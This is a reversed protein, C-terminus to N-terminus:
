SITTNYDLNITRIIKEAQNLKLTFICQYVRDLIKQLKLDNKHKKRLQYLKYPLELDKKTYSVQTYEQVKELFTYGFELTPEIMTGEGFDNWTIIQIFDVPYQNSLNLTAELTQTGNPAIQWDANTDNRWGGETYYDNFCPYIGGVTQINNEKTYNYYGELTNLHNKDIWSFEGGAYKGLNNRDKWLSMFTPNTKLKAMIDVWDLSDNIYDPGFIFLLESKNMRLYNPSKFYTKEIYQLDTIAANLNATPIRQTQTNKAVKDEYMIAFDLGVEEIEKIFSETSKKLARYDYVDRSGYWDFIVGDIGALKMLLLHYEQLDNDNSSYPGILPYYHSAIQRKGQADMIEPNRNTMTWHQGWYGDQEPTFFWPMYHVYIKKANGKTVKLAQPTTKQTIIEQYANELINNNTNEIENTTYDSTCSISFVLFFLSITKTFNSMTNTKKDQNLYVNNKKSCVFLYVILYMITRKFVNLFIILLTNLKLLLSKFFVSM